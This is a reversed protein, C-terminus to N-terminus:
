RFIMLTGRPFALRVERGGSVTWNAANTWYGDEAGTWVYEAAAASWCCALVGLLAVMKRGSGLRKEFKM